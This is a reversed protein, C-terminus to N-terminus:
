VIARARDDFMDRFNDWDENGRPTHVLMNIRSIGWGVSAPNTRRGRKRYIIVDRMRPFRQKIGRRGNWNDWDKATLQFGGAPVAEEPGKLLDAQCRQFRNPDFEALRDRLNWDFQPDALLIRGAYCQFSAAAFILDWRAQSQGTDPRMPASICRACKTMRVMGSDHCALEKCLKCPRYPDPHRQNKPWLYNYMCSDVEASGDDRGVGTKLHYWNDCLWCAEREDTRHVKGLCIPCDNNALPGPLPSYTPDRGRYHKAIEERALIAADRTSRARQISRGAM